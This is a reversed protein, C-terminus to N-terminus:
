DVLEVSGGSLTVMEVQSVRVLLGGSHDIGAAVGEVGEVRVRRGFLADYRGLEAQLAAEGATELLEIQRELEALIEILLEERTVEVSALCLSTAQSALEAPFDRVSVNVGFGVVVASLEHGQVHSECLVGAVKRGDLWVDNPWKVLARQAPNSLMGAVAARVALGTSLALLSVRELPLRSRLVLSCLLSQRPAAFWQRGRRGRGASQADAVFTAGHPAGSRAATLADDNTSATVVAHHFPAGLTLGRATHLSAFRAVDFDAEANM